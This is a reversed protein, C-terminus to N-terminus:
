LKKKRGLIDYGNERLYKYADRTKGYRLTNAKKMANVKATHSKDRYEDALNMWSRARGEAYNADAIPNAYWHPKSRYENAQKFAEAASTRFLRENTDYAAVLKAGKNMAHESATNKIYKSYKVAGYTALGAAALGAGIAIYKKTNSSSGSKDRKEKLKNIRKDYVDAVIKQDRKADKVSYTTKGKLPGHSFKLDSKIANYSDVEAKKRAELKAIKKDYRNQKRIGWHMGKVGHHALYDNPIYYAM